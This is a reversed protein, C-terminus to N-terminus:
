DIDINDWLQGSSSGDEEDYLNQIARSRRKKYKIKDMIESVKIRLETLGSDNDITYDYAWAVGRESVHMDIPEGPINRIINIVVMSADKDCLYSIENPFRCDTIICDRNRKIKKWLERAWIDNGFCKRVVDTGVLQYWRRMTLGGFMYTDKVDDFREIVNDVGYIESAMLGVMRKLPEALAFQEYSPNAGTIMDAVTNKGSRKKGCLLIRVM